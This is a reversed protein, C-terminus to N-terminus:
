GNCRKEKTIPNIASTQDSRAITFDQRFIVGPELSMVDGGRQTDGGTVGRVRIRLVHVRTLVRAPFPLAPRSTDHM